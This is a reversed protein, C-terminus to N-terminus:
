KDSETGFLDAQSATRLLRAAETSSDIRRSRNIEETQQSLSALNLNTYQLAQELQTSKAYSESLVRIQTRQIQLNEQSVTLLAALGPALATAALDVVGKDDKFGLNISDNFKAIEDNLGNEDELSLISELNDQISKLKEKSRKQGAEGLVSAVSGRTLLRNIENGLLNARVVPNNEFRDSISYNLVQNGAEQGAAIPNPVNLDGTAGSIATRSQSDVPKLNDSLNKQLYNQLDTAYSQFDNWVYGVQAMAPLILLSAFTLTFITTKRM